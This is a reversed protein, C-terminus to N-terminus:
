PRERRVRRVRTASAAPRSATAALAASAWIDASITGGSISYEAHMLSGDDTDARLKKEAGFVDEIFKTFGEADDPLVIYPMVPSYHGPISKKQEAASM